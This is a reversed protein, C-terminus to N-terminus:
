PHGRAADVDLIEGPLRDYRAISVPLPLRWGKMVRLRSCLRIRDESECDVAIPELSDADALTDAAWDPGPAMIAVWPFPCSAEELDSESPAWVPEVGIEQARM